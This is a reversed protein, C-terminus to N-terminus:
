KLNRLMHKKLSINVLTGPTCKKKKTFGSASKLVKLQYSKIFIHTIWHM